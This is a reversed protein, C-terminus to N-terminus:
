RSGIAWLRDDTRLFIAGNSVAPSALTREGIDNESILKYQRSSEIVFVKGTEQTLYIKGDAVIPSASFAGGLRTKWLTEGTEADVASAIGRETAMFIVGQDYVFSSIYPAGTPVRWKLKSDSVDGKGDVRVALFPGSYHGRGSYVVGNHYVPTSVPVRNPEGIHWIPEGNAPDVAEVYTNTNILLQDAGDHRIVFPTTYSRNAEDRDKRWLDKGTAPDVALLYSDGPHDVLMLLSDQYLTASSGHGWRIDFGNSEDGLQRKWVIEGDLTFAVALGDGFWAYVREGDTVCSPSALNHKIHVAPLNDGGAFEQQWLPSGDNKAFASVVFTVGDRAAGAKPSRADDFDSGGASPGSGQQSTVFIKDEWIIPTSTGLGPLPAKWLVNDVASWSIPLNSESSHGDATPGRWQPWNEAAIPLTIILLLLTLRVSTM